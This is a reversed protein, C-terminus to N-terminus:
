NEIKSKGDSLINNNEQNIEKHLYTKDSQFSSLRKNYIPQKKFDSVGDNDLWIKPLWITIKSTNMYVVVRIKLVIHFLSVV